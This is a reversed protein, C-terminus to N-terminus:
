RIRADREMAVRFRFFGPRINKVRSDSCMSFESLCDVVCFVMFLDADATHCPLRLSPFPVIDVSLPTSECVGYEKLVRNSLARPVFGSSSTAAACAPQKEIASEASNPLAPMVGSDMAVVAFRVMSRSSAPQVTVAIWRSTFARIGPPSLTFNSAAAFEALAPHGMERRSLVLIVISALSVAQVIQRSELRRTPM